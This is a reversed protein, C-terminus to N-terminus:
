NLTLREGIKAEELQKRINEAIRSENKSKLIEYFKLYENEATNRGVYTYLGLM